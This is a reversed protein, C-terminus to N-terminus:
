SVYREARAMANSPILFLGILFLFNVFPVLLFLSWVAHLGIDRFRPIMLAFFFLLVVVIITTFFGADSVRVPQDMPHGGLKYFSLQALVALVMFGLYRLLFQLRTSRHPFLHRILMKM